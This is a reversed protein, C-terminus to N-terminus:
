EEVKYLNRIKREFYQTDFDSARRVARDALSSRLSFDLFIRKMMESLGASDGVDFLMGNEEHSIIEVLGGARSAIVPKSAAMAELAILGFGEFRSPVVVVDMAAIHMMTENWSMRGVFSVRDWWSSERYRSELVTKESGEGIVLLSFNRYQGALGAFAEFLIDLGKERSLRGAYGFVFCDGAGYRNKLELAEPSRVLESVSGTDVANYITFHWPFPHRQADMLVHGSGFWSKEATLSVSIFHNCLMASSRLMLKWLPSHWESYPQHVTAFIRSVGALRAAVIALAGPTMYQIHVIDPREEALMQRLRGIFAMSGLGRTLGMLMVDCGASRYEEVVLPDSEFYCVVCVEHGDFKLAKVLYLTQIETGGRYLCPIAVLVKM